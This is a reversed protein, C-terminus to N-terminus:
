KHEKRYSWGYYSANDELWGDIFDASLKAFMETSDEDSLVSIFPTITNNYYETYQKNLNDYFNEYHVPIDDDLSYDRKLVYCGDPHCARFEKCESTYANKIDDTSFTLGDPHNHTIVCDPPISLPNGESDTFDVGATNGDTINHLISGEQDVVVGVEYELNRINTEADAIATNTSNYKRQLNPPKAGEIIRGHNINGHLSEVNGSKSSGGVKGPRGSHGFNGSGKGGDIIFM